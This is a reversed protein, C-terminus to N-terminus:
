EDEQEKIDAKITTSQYGLKSVKNILDSFYYDSPLQREKNSQCIVFELEFNEKKSQHVLWDLEEIQRLDTVAINDNWTLLDDLERKTELRFLQGYVPQSQTLSFMRLLVSLPSVYTGTLEDIVVTETRKEKDELLEVDINLARAVFRKAPKAFKLVPLQRLKAQYDKGSNTMGLFVTVKKM